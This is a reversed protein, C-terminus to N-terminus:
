VGFWLLALAILGGLLSIGGFVTCIKVESWGLMEFHHHIPAMKFIRKGHTAKFYGVQLVVSLIELISVIAAPLLLVPMDLGFALACAIGGFFLSGTDGMFVKAPNFNWILFGVCGAAAVYGLLVTSSYRLVTGCLAFSIFMFFCVISNLGDIGDTFNVANVVGVIVLASLIYYFVGLEIRGLFPITTTTDGGALRVSFLYAGAVLFQMVLKQRETLGLNRKKAISIYDDLFGILGYCIAMSLGAITQVTQLHTQMMNFSPMLSLGLVMAVTIGIIFMIGGMTPTGQKKKHWQPGIERITQGFKLRHLMPILWKGLLATVGFSIAVCTLIWVNNM